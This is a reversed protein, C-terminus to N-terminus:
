KQCGAVRVGLTSHWLTRIDFSVLSPEPVRHKIQLQVWVAVTPTL